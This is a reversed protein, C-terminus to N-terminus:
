GHPGIQGPITMVPTGTLNGTINKNAQDGSYVATAYGNLTAPLGVFTPHGLVCARRATFKLTTLINGQSTAVFPTLFQGLGTWMADGDSLSDNLHAPNIFGSSFWAYGGNADHARSDYSSIPNIVAPDWQIIVDLAGITETPNDSVAVIDVNVVEGVKYSNKLPRLELNVNAKAAGTLLLAPLVVCVYKIM